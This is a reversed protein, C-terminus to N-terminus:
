RTQGAIYFHSKWRTSGLQRVAYFPLVGHSVDAAIRYNGPPLDVEISGRGAIAYSREVPGSLYLHLDYDTGNEISWGPSQGPALSNLIPAPLEQHAGSAIRDIQASITGEGATQQSDASPGPAVRSGSAAACGPPSGLSIQYQRGGLGRIDTSSSLFGETNVIIRYTKLPVSNLVLLGAKDLSSCDETSGQLSFSAFPKGDAQIAVIVTRHLHNIVAISMTDPGILEPLQSFIVTKMPLFESPTQSVATSTVATLLLGLFYASLSFLRQALSPVNTM